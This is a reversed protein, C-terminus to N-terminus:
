VRERCSARGIEEDIIQVRVRSGDLVARVWIHGEPPTADIANQLLNKFLQALNDPNGQLPPLLDSSCVDSSWDCDFRTHRRRSSFFFFLVHLVSLRGVGQSTEISLCCWLRTSRATYRSQVVDLVRYPRRSARM